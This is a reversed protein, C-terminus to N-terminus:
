RDLESVDVKYQVQPVMKSPAVYQTCTIIQTELDLLYLKVKRDPTLLGITLM